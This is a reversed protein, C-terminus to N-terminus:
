APPGQRSPPVIPTAKLRPLLSGFSREKLCGAWVGAGYALDDVLGIGLHAIARPLGGRARSRLAHAGHGAISVAAWLLVARRRSARRIVLPLLLPWWVRRVARALAATADKSAAPVLRRALARADPCGAAALRRGLRVVGLGMATASVAVTLGVRRRASGGALVSALAAAAVATGVPGAVFPPVTGPHRLDIPAAASGYGFRQRAFAALGRRPEHGVEAAPEYRVLWGAATIRRVLDVDEGYRLSRDFGGTSDIVARRVVMAAAPAYSLRRGAGVLGPRDGLDLPSERAEYSEIAASRGAGGPGVSRIRPAVAGVRADEFHAAALLLWEDGRARPLKADADLFAVLPATTAAAGIDRAAGPGVRVPSAVVRASGHGAVAATSGEGGDNSADDVVVIEVVDAREAEELTAVVRALSAPPDCSPIVVAVAGGGDLEDPVPHIVGAAVLHDALVAGAEEVSEGRTLRQLAEAGAASLRLLRVPEGGLVVSGDGLLRARQDVVYRRPPRPGGSAGDTSPSSAASTRERM